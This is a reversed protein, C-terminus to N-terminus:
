CKDELQHFHVHIFGYFTSKSTWGVLSLLPALGVERLGLHLMMHVLQQLRKIMHMLVPDEMTINLRLVVSRSSQECSTFMCLSFM